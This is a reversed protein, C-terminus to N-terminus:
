AAKEMYRNYASQYLSICDEIGMEALKDQYEAWTNENLPTNGIIASLTFTNVYTLIDSFKANFQTTEEATLTMLKPLNYADDVHDAWIEIASLQKESYTSQERVKDVVGVATDSLTYVNLALSFAPIESNTVTETLMPQGNEVVYTEGEVGYNQLLSGEESCCYDWMQLLLPLEEESVATSICLGNSSIGSLTWDVHVTDGDELVPTYAAVVDIGEVMDDYQGMNTLQSTYVGCDNNTIIDQPANTNSSTYSMFDQYILGESCWKAMTSLYDYYGDEYPGYKVQGEVQYIPYQIEGSGNYWASIGYASSFYDNNLIGSSNIWLASGANKENKFATLVNYYDEITKPMDLSLEDLWDKRIVLGGQYTTNKTYNHLVSWYGVDSESGVSEAFAPYLEMNHLYNPMNEQIQEKMDWIVNEEVYYDLSDTLKASAFMDVYDGSALMLNFTEMEAEISVADWEIHVGTREELEMWAPYDYFPKEFFNSMIGPFSVFYSYSEGGTTLPLTVTLNEIPAEEAASEAVSPQSPESTEIEPTDAEVVESVSNPVSAATESVSVDGGCASLLGLMITLVLVASILKKM